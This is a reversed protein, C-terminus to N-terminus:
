KLGLKTKVLPLIDQSDPATYVLVGGSTDFIYSFGNELAVDSVAKLAKAQIPQFLATQQNTYEEEAQTQFTQMRQQLTNLEEEKTKLILQGTTGDQTLKLYDEYKKNFELQIGELTSQIEKYSKELKKSASDSEPMAQLLIKSNIHGIKLTAQGMAGTIMFVAVALLVITRKM